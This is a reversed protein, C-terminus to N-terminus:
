GKKHAKIIEKRREAHSLGDREFRASREKMAGTFKIGEVASIQTFRERGIVFKASVRKNSGSKKQIPM